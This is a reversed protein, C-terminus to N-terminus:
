PRGHAARASYSLPHRLLRVETTTAAPAQRRLCGRGWVTPMGVRDARHDRQDVSETSDMAECPEASDMPLTPETADSPLKPEAADINDTPDTSLVPETSDQWDRQDSIDNWDNPATMPERDAPESRAAPGGASSAPM